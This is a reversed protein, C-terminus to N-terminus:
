HTLWQLIEKPPRNSRFLNCLPFPNSLLPLSDCMISNGELKCLPKRISHSLRTKHLIKKLPHTFLDVAHGRMFFGAEVSRCVRDPLFQGKIERHLHISSFSLTVTTRRFYPFRTKEIRSNFSSSLKPFM